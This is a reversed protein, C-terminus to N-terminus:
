PRTNMTSLTLRSSFDAPLGRAMAPTLPWFPLAATTWVWVRPYPGCDFAFHAKFFNWLRQGCLECVLDAENRRQGWNECCECLGCPGYHGTSPGSTLLRKLRGHRCRAPRRDMGGGPGHEAWRRGRSQGLTRSRRRRAPRRRADIARLRRRSRGWPGGCRRWSSSRCSPSSSRPQKPAWTLTRARLRAVCLNGRHRLDGEARRDGDPV